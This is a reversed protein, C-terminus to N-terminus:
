LFKEVIAVIDNLVEQKSRNADIVHVNPFYNKLKLYNNLVKQLKEKEEFLEIHFRTKGIRELCVEPPANLIFTLDPKRFKSNILKLFELDTGLSGYALSSFIYRDCIVIKGAELSPEIENVLHHARDAAFLLQLGEPTTRADKRLFAKVLGGILGDSQEKTLLTNKGKSILYDRLLAAQTSLGSGDTGEIAVFLGKKPM